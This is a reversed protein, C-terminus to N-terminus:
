SHLVTSHQVMEKFQIGMNLPHFSRSHETNQTFVSNHHEFDILLYLNPIFSTYTRM